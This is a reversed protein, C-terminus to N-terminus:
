KADTIREPKAVPVRQYESLGRETQREELAIVPLFPYRQYPCSPTKKKARSQMSEGAMYKKVCSKSQRAKDSRPSFLACHAHSSFGVLMEIGEKSITYTTTTLVELDLYYRGHKLAFGRQLLVTHHVISQLFLNCENM